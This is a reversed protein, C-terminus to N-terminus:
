RLHESPMLLRLSLLPGLLLRSRAHEAALAHERRGLSRASRQCAQRYRSRGILYLLADRVHPSRRIRGAFLGQRNIFRPEGPYSRDCVIWDVNFSATYTRTEIRGHGKEIEAHKIALEETPASSFYDAVDAELTPQNGKLALLYDAMYEVIKDAIAVQCGIADITVLAGALQKTEALHDLLEPM